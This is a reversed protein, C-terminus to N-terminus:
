IIYGKPISMKLIWYLLIKEQLHFIESFMHGMLCENWLVTVQYILINETILLTRSNDICKFNEPLINM